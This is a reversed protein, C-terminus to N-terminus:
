HTARMDYLRRPNDAMLKRRLEDTPAMEAILDVLQGDDPIPGKHHPHPWDTGWVVRDPFETVLKRAFPVADAYPPGTRTIRDCGSVKVWFKDSQMLRLLSKFQPQELGLGADVRAIHDVVVPVPSRELKPELDPLMTGEMHIQLHWGVDALRPLFDMVQEFSYDRHLHPMFNYRAGRFGLRDLRRLEANDVTTPLLAVGLYAGGKAALADETVRLDFGHAATHVIVCREIGLMAHLAFLKEKPADVFNVPATSAYPFRDTPGLVHCHTDWSGPPLRLKPKNPELKFSLLREGAVIL